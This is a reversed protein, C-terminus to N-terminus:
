PELSRHDDYPSAEPCHVFTRENEGDAIVVNEVIPKEINM